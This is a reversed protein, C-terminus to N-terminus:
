DELYKNCACMCMLIIGYLFRSSAIDPIFMAGVVVLWFLWIYMGAKIVSQVLFSFFPLLFLFTGIIGMQVLYQIIFNHIAGLGAVQKLNELGLGYGLFPKNEFYELAELYMEFRGSSDLLEQGGRISLLKEMLVPTLLCGIFVVLILRTNFEKFNFILYLIITIAFAYIGTRASVMLMAFLMLAEFIAFRFFSSKYKNVFELFVLLAGTAIYLNAFSYDGFLGAYAYRGTGMAAYHGIVHGTVMIYARQVIVQLAVSVTGYLYYNSMSDLMNSNSYNNIYYGIFFSFLLLIITLLQKLADGLSPLFMSYFLEVVGFLTIMLFHRKSLKGTIGILGVALIISVNFWTLPLSGYSTGIVSITSTPIMIISLLILSDIYGYEKRLINYIYIVVMFSIGMIIVSPIRSYFIMGVSYIIMPTLIKWNSVKSNM